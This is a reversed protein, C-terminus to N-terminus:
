EAIRTRVTWRFVPSGDADDRHLRFHEYGGRHEIKVTDNLDTVWTTRMADPISSPGGELRVAISTTRAHTSM